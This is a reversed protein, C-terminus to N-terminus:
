ESERDIDNGVEQVIEDFNRLWDDLREVSSLEGNHYVVVQTGAMELERIMDRFSKKRDVGQLEESVDYYDLDFGVVFDGSEIRDRIESLSLSGDFKRIIKIYKAMSGDNQIKLQVLNMYYGGCNARM